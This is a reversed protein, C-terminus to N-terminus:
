PQRPAPPSLLRAIEPVPSERILEALLRGTADKAELIAPQRELLRRCWAVDGTAVAHAVDDIEIALFAGLERLYHLAWGAPTAGYTTDRANLDAGADCFLRV